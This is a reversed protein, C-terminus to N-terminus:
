LCVSCVPRNGSLTMSVSSVTRNGSLTVPVNCVPRNEFLIVSMSYVLRNGSLTMYVSCIARNEFHTLSVSCVPRNGSVTMSVYFSFVFNLFFFFPVFFELTHIKGFMGCYRRRISKKEKETKLKLENFEVHDM